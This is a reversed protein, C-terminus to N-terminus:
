KLPDIRFINQETTALETYIPTTDGSKSKAKQMCQFRRQEHPFYLDHKCM